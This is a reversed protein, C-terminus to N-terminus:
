TPEVGLLQSISFAESIAIKYMTADPLYVSLYEKRWTRLQYNRLFRRAIPINVLRSLYIQSQQYFSLDIFGKQYCEQWVRQAQTKDQHRIYYKALWYYLGAFLAQRQESFCQMARLLHEIQEFLKEYEPLKEASIKTQSISTRDSAGFIRQLPSTQLPASVRWFFDPQSLKTYHLNALVARLHYEWDQWSPVYSNWEGLKDVAERRWIPSTTQWPADIALFRDIDHIGTEINWLLRMDGPNEYFLLCPFVAFDLNQNQEMFEVRNALCQPALYDDSDLYILYKGKALQTGQNRCVSAGKLASIRKSYRVRADQQRLYELYFLTEDESGDDIVIAEWDQFTQAFVSKLTQPLLQYRNFTPIIISIVPNM